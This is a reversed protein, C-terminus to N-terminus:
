CRGAIRRSEPFLGSQFASRCFWYDSFLDGSTYYNQAICSGLCRWKMVCEQCIGQMERPLKERIEKLVPTEKWIKELPDVRADGFVMSPTSEGIGCLAYKGSSLVGLINFIGCVGCDVGANRFLSSMPRFAMPLSTFIRIKANKQFDKEMWNGLDILEPVSLTENRTHMVKGRETPQVFNFKISKAGLDKALAAVDPIDDKNARMVTMIIQLPIKAESVLRAGECAKEFSGQVGRIHEHNEALGDISVSVFPAVCESVIKAIDPTICLGNTEIKLGIHQDRIFQLIGTIEPHILPEGGTLKVSSLGLHKAQDIIHHFLPIDLARTSVGQKQYTPSIWCHRCALNCDGCLYFYLTNLQPIAKIKQESPEPNMM